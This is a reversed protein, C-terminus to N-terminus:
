QGSKRNDSSRSKMVGPTPSSISRAACLITSRALPVVKGKPAPLEYTGVVLDTKREPVDGLTIDFVEGDYSTDIMVSDVMARWDEIRPQVVGTQQALRAVISPLVFDEIQDRITDGSREVHVKASAPEHSIFQGYREDTRLEIAEIRNM